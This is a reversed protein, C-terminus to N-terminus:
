PDLIWTYVHVHLYEVNRANRFAEPAFYWKPLFGIGPDRIQWLINSPKSSYQPSGGM